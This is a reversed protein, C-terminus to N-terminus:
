QYQLHQKTKHRFLREREERKEREREREEIFSSWVAIFAKQDSFNEFDPDYSNQRQCFQSRFSLFLRKQAHAIFYPRFDVFVSHFRWYKLINILFWHQQSRRHCFSKSSYTRYHQKQAHVCFVIWFPQLHKAIMCINSRVPLPTASDGVLARVTNKMLLSIHGFPVLFDDFQWLKLALSDIYRVVVTVLFKPYFISIISIKRM